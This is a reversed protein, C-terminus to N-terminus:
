FDTVDKEEQTPNDRLKFIRDYKKNEAIQSASRQPYRTDFEVLFKDIPSVYKKDIKKDIKKHAIKDQSM